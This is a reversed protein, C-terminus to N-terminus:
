EVITADEEPVFGTHEVTVGDATTAKYNSVFRYYARMRRYERWSMGRVLDMPRQGFMRAM